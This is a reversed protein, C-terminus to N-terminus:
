LTSDRYKFFLAISIFLRVNPGSTSDMLSNIFFSGVSPRHAGYLLLNLVAVVKDELNDKFLSKIM